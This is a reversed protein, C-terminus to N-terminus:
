KEGPPYALGKRLREFKEVIPRGAEAIRAFVEVNHSFATVPRLRTKPPLIAVRPAKPGGRSRGHRASTATVNVGPPIM